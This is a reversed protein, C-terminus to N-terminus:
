GLRSAEAQRRGDVGCALWWSENSVGAAMLITGSTVVDDVLVIRNPRELTGQGVLSKM